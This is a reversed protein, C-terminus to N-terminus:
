CLFILDTNPITKRPLKWPKFRDNAAVLAPCVGVNHLRIICVSKSGGATIWATWDSLVTANNLLSCCPLRVNAKRANDELFDCSIIDKQKKPLRRTSLALLYFINISKIIYISMCVYAKRGKETELKNGLSNRSKTYIAISVGAIGATKRQNSCVKYLDLLLCQLYRIYNMKEKMVICYQM